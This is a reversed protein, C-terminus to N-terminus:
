LGRFVEAKYHRMLAEMRASPVVKRGLCVESGAPVSSRSPLSIGPPTGCSSSTPTSVVVTEAVLPSHSNGRGGLHIPAESNSQQASSIFSVNVEGALGSVSCGGSPITAGSNSVHVSSPPLKVSNCVHRSRTDGLAQLYPKVIKPHLSWETSIPQNPRSLHDAIVNLCGPIHRARIIINQDELWLLLEVTLRLLTLSHTGGQKNIYSVVTLNETPIMAQHGQLVPAWHQLASVVAKLELCNIHLKRDTRTWTGSIQSDLMHAGWGQMSADTFITFDHLGGSVHPYPNRLYSFM